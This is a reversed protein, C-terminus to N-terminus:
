TRIKISTLHVPINSATPPLFHISLVEIWSKTVDTIDIAFNHSM